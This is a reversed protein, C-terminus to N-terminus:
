SRPRREPERSQQDVHRSRHEKSEQHAIAQLAGRGTRLHTQQECGSEAASVRGEGSKGVLRRSQDLIAFPLATGRVDGRADYHRQTSRENSKRKGTAEQGRRATLCALPDEDSIV